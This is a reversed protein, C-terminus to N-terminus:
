EFDGLPYQSEEAYSDDEWESDKTVDYIYIKVHEACLTRVLNVTSDSRERVDAYDKLNSKKEKNM